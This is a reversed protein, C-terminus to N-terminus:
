KWMCLESIKAHFICQFPNSEWLTETIIRLIEQLFFNSGTVLIFWETKMHSM